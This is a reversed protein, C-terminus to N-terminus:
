FRFDATVSGSTFADSETDVLTKFEFNLNMRENLWLGFGVGYSLGSETTQRSPRGSGDDFELTTTIETQGLLFYVKAIENALEARYYYSLYSDISADVSGSLGVGTTDSELSEDQVSLGSRVEFGLYKNYKYGLQMEFTKFTVDSGFPSKAGVNVLGFGAGLYTGRDKAAHVSAAILFVLTFIFARM